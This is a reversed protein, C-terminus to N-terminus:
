FPLEGSQDSDIDFFTLDKPYDTSNAVNTVRTSQDYVIKDEYDKNPKMGGSDKESPVGGVKEATKLWLEEFFSDQKTGDWVPKGGQMFPEGKATMVQEKKPVEDPIAWSLREGDAEVYANGFFKGGGAEKKYVKVSLEAGPVSLSAFSNVIGHSLLNHTMEVQTNEDKDSLVFVFLKSKVGEYERERIGMKTLTGTVTDFPEGKIWKTGDKINQVFHPTNTEDAKAKLSFFTTNKNNSNSAGM